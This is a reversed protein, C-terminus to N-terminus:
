LRQAIEAVLKTVRDLAISRDANFESEGGEFVVKCSVGLSRNQVAGMYRLIVRSDVKFSYGYHGQTLPELYSAQDFYVDIYDQVDIDLVNAIEENSMDGVLEGERAALDAYIPSIECVVMNVSDQYGGKKGVTCEAELDSIKNLETYVGSGSTNFIIAAINNDLYPLCDEYATNADTIKSELDIKGDSKYVSCNQYPLLIGGLIVAWLAIKIKSSAAKLM